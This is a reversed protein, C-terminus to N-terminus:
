VYMFLELSCLNCTYLAFIDPIASKFLHDNKCFLESYVHKTNPRLDECHWYFKNGKKCLLENAQKEEM